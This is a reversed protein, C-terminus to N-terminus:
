IHQKWEVDGIETAVVEPDWEKSSQQVLCPRREKTEQLQSQISDVM